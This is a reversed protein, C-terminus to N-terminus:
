SRTGYWYTGHRDHAEGWDRGAEFSAPDAGVLVECQYWVHRRDKAYGQGLFLITAPDASPVTESEYYVAKDDTMFLDPHDIKNESSGANLPRGSYYLRDKDCAKESSAHFSRTDAGDIKSGKFFVSVADLAYFVNLAKFTKPDAGSLRSTLHYCAAKDRFHSPSISEITEGDMEPVRAGDETFVGNERVTLLCYAPDGIVRSQM